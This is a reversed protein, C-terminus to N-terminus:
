KLNGPELFSKYMYTHLLNRNRNQSLCFSTFNFKLFKSPNILLQIQIEFLFKAFFLLNSSSDKSSNHGNALTVFIANIMFHFGHNFNGGSDLISGLDASQYDSANVM